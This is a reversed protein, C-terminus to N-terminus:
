RPWGLDFSYVNTTLCSVQHTPDIRSALLKSSWKLTMWLWLDYPNVNTYPLAVQHISDIRSASIKSPWKLTMRPWGLYDNSYRCSVRHTPNIRLSLIHKLDSWPWRPVDSTLHTFMPTHVNQFGNKELDNWPWELDFQYVSTYSCSVQHTTDIRSALLKSPWKLPMWPWGLDFPHANTYPCSVQHTPDIRSSVIKSPWGPWM